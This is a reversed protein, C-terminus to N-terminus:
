LGKVVVKKVYKKAIEEALLHDEKKRPLMNVKNYEVVNYKQISYAKAGEIRKCIEEIDEVSLDPSFTTRFEYDVHGELLLDISDNISEMDNYTVTIKAYKELPAKIDMAVYDVLKKDIVEQLVKYNTGNTDLKIKYGMAKIKTLFDILDKQLTPEGGSVVVADLYKKHSELFDFIEKEEVKTKVNELIHSNHCYWCRMNCGVTFIACAINGPYDVFSNKVFGAIVM